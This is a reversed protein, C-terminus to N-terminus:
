IHSLHICIPSAIMCVYMHRVTNSFLLQHFSAAAAVSGLVSAVMLLSSWDGSRASRIWVEEEAEINGAFVLVILTAFLHILFWVIYAV